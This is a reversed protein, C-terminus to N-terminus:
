EKQRDGMAAIAGGGAGGGKRRRRGESVVRASATRRRVTGSWRRDGMAGVEEISQFEEGIGAGLLWYSSMSHWRWRKCGRLETVVKMGSGAGRSEVVVKKETETIV